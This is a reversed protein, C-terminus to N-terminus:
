KQFENHINEITKSADYMLYFKSVEATDKASFKVFIEGNIFAVGDDVEPVAFQSFDLLDEFQHAFKNINEIALNMESAPVQNLDLTIDMVGRAPSPYVAVLPYPPKCSGNLIENTQELIYDYITQLFADWDQGVGRKAFYYEAEKLWKIDFIVATGLPNFREVAMSYEGKYKELGFYGFEIVTTSM